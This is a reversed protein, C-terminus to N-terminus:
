QNNKEALVTYGLCDDGGKFLLSLNALIASLLFLPLFILGLIIYIFKMIHNVKQPMLLQLILAMTKYCAVTLKNGRAYIQIDTFRAKNLLHSLGSPTFRWYDHPIFHWRAAFPVSLVLQGHNKLCRNAQKLFSDTDIVHELVETCLVADMSEDAVPWNEGSYYITGPMKYGFKVEADSTDISNYETEKNFLVRFPQSGCGVDLVRGKITPLIIKMDQWLSGIQLDFFKRIPNLLKQGSWNYPLLPPRWNENRYDALNQKGPLIM